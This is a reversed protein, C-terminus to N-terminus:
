VSINQKNNAVNKYFCKEFKDNTERLNEGIINITSQILPFSVSMEYALEDKDYKDISKVLYNDELITLVKEINKYKAIYEEIDLVANLEVVNEM